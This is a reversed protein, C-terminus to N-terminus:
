NNKTCRQGFSFEFTFLLSMTSTCKLYRKARLSYMTPRFLYLQFAKMSVKEAIDMVLLVWKEEGKEILCELECVLDM